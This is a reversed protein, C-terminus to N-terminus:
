ILSPHRRNYAAQMGANVADDSGPKPKTKVAAAPDKTGGGAGPAATAVAAAAATLKAKDESEKTKGAAEKVKSLARRGFAAYYLLQASHPNGTAWPVRDAIDLIDPALERYDPFSEADQQMKTISEDIHAKVQGEWEKQKAERADKTEKLKAALMKREGFKQIARAAKIPGMAELAEDTPEPMDPGIQVQLELEAIRAALEATKTAAGAEIEKVRGALRKGETSSHKYAIELEEPSKHELQSLLFLTTGAARSMLGSGEVYDRMTFGIPEGTEMKRKYRKIFEGVFLYSHFFPNFPRSDWDDEDGGALLATIERLRGEPVITGTKLQNWKEGAWKSNRLQYAGYFMLSGEIGRNIIKM